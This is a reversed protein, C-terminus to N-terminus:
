RRPGGGRGKGLPSPAAAPPEPPAEDLLGVAKRFRQVHTREARTLMEFWDAVDNFGEARAIEAMAPYMEGEETLEGAIAAQLNLRSPGYPLGSGPDTAAELFELHGSAHGAEGEAASRFMAAIEAQGEAEAKRAFYLYRHYAQAEAAFAQKLCQETRSGKLEPM